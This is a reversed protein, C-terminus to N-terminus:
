PNRVECEGRKGRWSGLQGPGPKCGLLEVWLFVHRQVDDSSHRGEQPWVRVYRAQVMQDFTWVEPAM